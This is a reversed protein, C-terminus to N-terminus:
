SYLDRGLLWIFCYSKNEWYWHCTKDIMFYLLVVGVYAMMVSRSKKDYEHMKWINHFICNLIMTIYIHRKRISISLQYLKYYTLCCRGKGLNYVEKQKQTTITRITCFFLTTIPTCLLLLVCTLEHFPYFLSETQGDGWQYM